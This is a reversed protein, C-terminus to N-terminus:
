VFQINCWGKVMNEATNVLANYVGDVTEPPYLWQAQADESVLEWLDRGINADAQYGLDNIASAILQAAQAESPHVPRPDGNLMAYEILRELEDVLASQRSYAAERGDIIKNVIEQLKNKRNITM